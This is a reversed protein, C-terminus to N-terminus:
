FATSYCNATESLTLRANEIVQKVLMENFGQQLAYHCDALCEDVFQVSNLKALRNALAILECWDRHHVANEPDHHWLTTALLADPLGWAKMLEYGVQAHNFGLLNNEQEFMAGEEASDDMSAVKEAFQHWIIPKGMDHLLGAVFLSGGEAALTSSLSLNKAILACLFSHQAHRHLKAKDIPIKQFLKIAGTSLLLVALENRGLLNVAQNISSIHSRFGYVASNVLKLVVLSLGPDQEILDAIAQNSTNPDKLKLNVRGHIEPLAYIPQKLDIWELSNTM